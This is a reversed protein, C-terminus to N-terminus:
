IFTYLFGILHYFYVFFTKKCANNLLAYHLYIQTCSVKICRDARTLYREICNMHDEGSCGGIAFLIEHPIRPHAIEPTPIEKDEKTIMRVDLFFMVTELLVPLCAKNAAV